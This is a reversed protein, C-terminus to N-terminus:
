RGSFTAAALAHTFLQEGQPQRNTLIDKLFEISEHRKQRAAARYADNVNVNSFEDLKMARRNERAARDDKGTSAPTDSAKAVDDAAAAVPDTITLFAVVVFTAALPLKM